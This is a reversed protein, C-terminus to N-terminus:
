LNAKSSLEGGALTDNAERTSFSYRRGTAKTGQGNAITSRHHHACVFFELLAWQEGGTRVYRRAEARGGISPVGRLWAVRTEGRTFNSGLGSTERTPVKAGFYRHASRRVM